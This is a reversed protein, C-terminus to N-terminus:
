TSADKIYSSSYFDYLKCYEYSRPMLRTIYGSEVLFPYGVTGRITVFSMAASVPM